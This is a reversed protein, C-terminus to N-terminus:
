TLSTFLMKECGSLEELLENTDCLDASPLSPLRYESPLGSDLWSLDSSEVSETPSLTPRSAQDLPLDNGLDSVDLSEQVAREQGAFPALQLQGNEDPSRRPRKSAPEGRTDEPQRPAGFGSEKEEQKRPRKNETGTLVEPLTRRNVTGLPQRRAPRHSRKPSRSSLWEGSSSGTPHTEVADASSLSTSTNLARLKERPGSPRKGRGVDTAQKAPLVEGDARAVVSQVQHGWNEKETHGRSSKKRVGKTYRSAPVKAEEEGRGGLDQGQTGVGSGAWLQRM